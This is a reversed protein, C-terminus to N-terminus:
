VFHKVGKTLFNLFSLVFGFLTFHKQDFIKFVNFSM